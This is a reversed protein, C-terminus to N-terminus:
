EASRKKAVGERARTKSVVAAAIERARKETHGREMEAEVVHKYQRDTKATWTSEDTM